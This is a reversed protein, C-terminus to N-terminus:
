RGRRLDALEYTTKCVVGGVVAVAGPTIGGAPAYFRQTPPWFDGFNDKWTAIVEEPAVNPM